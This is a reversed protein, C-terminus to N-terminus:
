CLIESIGQELSRPKHELLSALRLSFTTNRPRPAPAVDVISCPEVIGAVTAPESIRNRIRNAMENITMSEPGAINISINNFKKCAQWISIACDINWMPQAYVDTAAKVTEGALLKGLMTMVVNSREHPDHRGYLLMPRVILYTSVMSKVFVESAAKCCGYVNVPDTPANDDYDPNTGGFVANSSIYVLKCRKTRALNCVNVTARIIHDIGISPDKQVIDVNGEAACHIILDFDIDTSIPLVLDHVIHRDSNIPKRSLTYLDDNGNTAVLARGLLGTSGTILVKM